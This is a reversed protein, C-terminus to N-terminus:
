SINKIKNTFLLLYRKLLENVFEIGFKSASVAKTDKYTEISWKKHFIKLKTQLYDDYSDGCYNMSLNSGM